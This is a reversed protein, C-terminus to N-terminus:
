KIITTNYISAATKQSTWMYIVREFHFFFDLATNDTRRGNEFVRYKLRDYRYDDWIM